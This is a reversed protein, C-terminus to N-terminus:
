KAVVVGVSFGVLISLLIWKIKSDREKSADAKIQQELAQEKKYLLDNQVTLDNVYINCKKLTASCQQVGSCCDAKLSQTTTLTILVLLGLKTLKRM